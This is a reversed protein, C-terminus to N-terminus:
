LIFARGPHQARSASPVTNSAETSTGAVRGYTMLWVTFCRSPPETRSLVSRNRCSHSYEYLLIVTSSRIVAATRRTRGGKAESGRWPPGRCNQVLRVDKQPPRPSTYSLPLVRKHALALQHPISPVFRDTIVPYSVTQFCTRPFSPWISACTSMPCRDTETYLRGFLAQACPCGLPRM